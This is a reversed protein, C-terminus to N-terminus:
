LNEIWEGNMVFSAILSECIIEYLNVILLNFNYSVPSSVPFFSHNGFSSEATATRSLLSM